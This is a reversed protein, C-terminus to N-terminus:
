PRPNRLLYLVAGQEGAAARSQMRRYHEREVHRRAAERWPQTVTMDWQRAVRGLSEALRGAADALAALGAAVEREAGADAWMNTVARDRQDTM